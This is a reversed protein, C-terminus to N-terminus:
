KWIIKYASKYAKSSQRNVKLRQHRSLAPNIDGPSYLSTSFLLSYTQMKANM